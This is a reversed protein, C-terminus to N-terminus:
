CLKINWLQSTQIERSEHTCFTTIYRSEPALELHNHGQNFDMKSFVRAGNLDGILEKVTPTDHRERKVAKNAQRMDVCM